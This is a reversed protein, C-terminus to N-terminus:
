KIYMVKSFKMNIQIELYKMGKKHIIRKNKFCFIKIKVKAVSSHQIESDFKRGKACNEHEKDLATICFHFSLNTQEWM